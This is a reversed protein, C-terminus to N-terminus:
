LTPVSEPYDVRYAHRARFIKEDRGPLVPDLPTSDSDLFVNRLQLSTSGISVTGSYGDLENRAREALRRMETFESSYMNVQIDAMVWGSAGGLHHAHEASDRNIVIYPLTASQPAKQPYIGTSVFDVIETSDLLRQAMAAEVSIKDIAM